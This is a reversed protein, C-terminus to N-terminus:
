EIKVPRVLLAVQIAIKFASHTTFLKLCQVEDILVFALNMKALVRTIQADVAIGSGGLQFLMSQYLVLSFRSAVNTVLCHIPAQVFQCLMICDLMCRCLVSSYYPLTRQALGYQRTPVARYKQLDLGIVEPFDVVGILVPELTVIAVFSESRLELILTVRVLMQVRSRVHTLLAVLRVCCTRCQILMQLFRNGVTFLLIFSTDIFRSHKKFTNM